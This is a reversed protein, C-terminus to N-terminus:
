ENVIDPKVLRLSNKTLISKLILLTEKRREMEAYKSSGPFLVPGKMFEEVEEILQDLVTM